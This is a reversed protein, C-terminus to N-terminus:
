LLSDFEKHSFNKGCNECRFKWEVTDPMRVSIGYIGRRFEESQKREVWKLVKGKCQDCVKKSDSPTEALRTLVEFLSM